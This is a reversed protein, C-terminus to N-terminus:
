ITHIINSFTCFWENRLTSRIHYLLSTLAREMLSLAWFPFVCLYYLTHKVFRLFDAFHRCIHKGTYVYGHDFFFRKCGATLRKPCAEELCSFPIVMKPQMIQINRPKLQM